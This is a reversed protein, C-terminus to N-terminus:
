SARLINRSVLVKRAIIRWLDPMNATLCDAVASKDYFVARGFLRPSPLIGRREWRALTRYSVELAAALNTRSILGFHDPATRTHHTEAPQPEPIVPKIRKTWM